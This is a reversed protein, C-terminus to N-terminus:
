RFVLPLSPRFDASEDQAGQDFTVEALHAEGLAFRILGVEELSHLAGSIKGQPVTIRLATIEKFGVAHELPQRQESPYSDPRSAFALHFLLPEAPSDSNEAVEIQLLAPLYSPNYAWTEFPLEVPEDAPRSPRLALGFPSYGSQQYQWREWLRLRSATPGRAEEEDKVWLFELYANRFFFRRCATGQGPHTNSQGETLGLTVLHEVEPAGAATWLLLHDVEV